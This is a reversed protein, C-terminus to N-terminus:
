QILVERVLVNKVVVPEVAQNVRLLLAEKLRYIGASGQLDEVRLSRLYTQFDDQVRPLLTELELRDPESGVELSLKIKLFRSAGNGSDLNVILEPVDFFQAKASAEAEVQAAAAEEAPEDGGAFLLFYTAAGAIVLVVVLGAALLIVMKKRGGGGDEGEEGEEGEAGEAGEEAENEPKQDDDAM